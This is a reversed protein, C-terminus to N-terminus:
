GDRRADQQGWRCTMSPLLSLPLWGTTRNGIFCHISRMVAYASLHPRGANQHSTFAGYQGSTSGAQTTCSTCCRASQAAACSDNSGIWMHILMEDKQM